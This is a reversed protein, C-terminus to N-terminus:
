VEYSFTESELLVTLVSSTLKGASVIVNGKCKVHYWLKRQKDVKKIEIIKEESHAWIWGKENRM